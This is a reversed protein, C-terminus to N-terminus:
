LAVKSLTDSLKRITFPKGGPGVWDMGPKAMLKLKGSAFAIEVTGGKKLNLHVRSVCAEAPVVHLAGKKDRSVTCNWGVLSGDARELVYANEVMVEGVCKFIEHVDNNCAGGGSDGYAWVCKGKAPKYWQSVMPIYQESVVKNVRIPKGPTAPDEQFVSAPVYPDPVFAWRLEGTKFDILQACSGLASEVQNMYSEEGTLLYLYWLGYIRWASWGHPSNMMNPTLMVDYQSEWYRLSGGNMRSDPILIQSLCKHKDKLYVAADLYKKARVPDSQQLAFMALQTYSCGIMGDEFTMEGETQINDGSQVLEDMARRVSDFHVNAKVAWKSDKAAAEAEALAVTLINKGVYIVSTYHTGYMRYAGDPTQTKIVFDALSSAFELDKIDGTALYKQAMLEAAGSQNQTRDASPHPLTKNSDYPVKKNMDYMLPWIEAFVQDIASDAAADPLVRRAMYAPFLGYWSEIHSSAIQVKALAQKRAQTMYWAWPRRVSLSAESVRGSGNSVQVSYRGIGGTPKFTAAYHGATTPKLALSEKKGDPDFITAVPPTASIVRLQMSENADVTYTDCDVMPAQTSRAVAAKVDDLNKVDELIIKWTREAGAPLADLGQPHRAPLPGAHLLDLTTTYIRHGGGSYRTTYCAVPDPSSIALIRQKPSMFYGWFHTKECRLLTPSYKDNWSPYSAMELDLGLQVGCSAPKFDMAGKNKLGATVVLRGGEVAYVLSYELEGDRKSYRGPSAGDSSLVIPRGETSGADNVVWLCGRDPGKRFDVSEWNGSRNIEIKKLVGRLGITVKLVDDGVVAVPDQDPFCEASLGKFSVESAYTRFGIADFSKMRVSCEMQWTSPEVVGDLWIKMRATNDSLEVKLQYWQDWTVKVPCQRGNGNISVTCTDTPVGPQKFITMFYLRENTKKDFLTLSGSAYDPQGSPLFIKATGRFVFDDIVRLQVDASVAGSVKIAGQDLTFAGKGPEKTKGELATWRSASSLAHDLGLGDGRVSPLALVLLCFLSIRKEM